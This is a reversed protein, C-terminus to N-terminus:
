PQASLGYAAARKHGMLQVYAQVKGSDARITIEGARWTFLPQLSDKM